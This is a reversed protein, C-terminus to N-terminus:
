PIAGESDSANRYEIILDFLEPETNSRVTYSTPSPDGTQGTLYEASTQLIDAMTRIVHISPSREGSEYRLYAPQSMNMRRAAEQKTVCLKERCNILREKVLKESM